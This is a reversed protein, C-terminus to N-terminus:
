VIVDMKEITKGNRFIVKGLEEVSRPVEAANESAVNSVSASAAGSAGTTGAAAADNPSQLQQITSNSASDGDNTMTEQEPQTNREESQKSEDAGGASPEAM